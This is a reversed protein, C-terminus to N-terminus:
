TRFDTLVHNLEETLTSLHRTASEMEEMSKANSVSYANMEEIKQAIGDIREATKAYDHLTQENSATADDMIRATQSINNEVDHAIQTLKEMSQSNTNMHDSADNIAQVIVNITANIELLSKQTREALKRVEDAVVAFGRGHEGARAAEIAANLALLNTQDAIDSIVTLVNKVQDADSSLQAIQRALEVETQASDEVQAAMKLIENKANGLTTHANEIEKKSQEAKQLSHQLENKIAQSMANTTQAIESTSKVRKGVEIATSSLQTAVSANQVSSEKAHAVTQRVKEIFRNFELSTQGIEDGSKIDIKKTLDGDGSALSAAKDKLEELPRSVAKRLVLILAVIVLIDILAMIVIQRLMGSQAENVTQDVVSKPVAMLVEGCRNGDFGKLEQRVVFYTPTMFRSGQASLDLNKIEEFLKMDTNEKKQSLATDRALLADKASASLDLQKKDTLFIVSAGLDKKAGTVVSEFSQIFEVSGLYEKDKLVPALGRLSMGAVGMEIAYLPQKSEKVKKITHRFSALDDGFKEPMWARLFSKIDKTHIHIQVNKFDTFEKYTQSLTKLGELALARDNRLLAEIVYYNSAVTIANTLAVDYKADLQNEVYVRLTSQEKTYVDKEITRVSLYTSALIIVMGVIISSILPLHIKNSISLASYM